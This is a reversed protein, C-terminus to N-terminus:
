PFRAPEAIGNKHIKRTPVRGFDGREREKGAQRESVPRTIKVTSLSGRRAGRERTIKYFRGRRGKPLLVRIKM